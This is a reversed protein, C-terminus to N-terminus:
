PQASGAAADRLAQLAARHDAEAAVWRTALPELWLRGAEDATVPWGEALGQLRELLRREAQLELTALKSRLETLDADSAAAGKWARRLTRLPITVTSQWPQALTELQAVREPSAAAGRQELWLAALLLCVDAGWDDQLRLCLEAVGPRAYLTSSFDWLSQPM